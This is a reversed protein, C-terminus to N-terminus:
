IKGTLRECWGKSESHPWVVWYSPKSPADFEVFIKYYNDPDSGLNKIEEPTLDKRYVTEDKEDHVAVAWLTYDSEPVQFPFIDICHKFRSVLGNYYDVDDIKEYTPNLHDLTNQHVKRTRFELGAYKEYDHITRVNGFGYIGFDISCPCRGDMGFLTKNREHCKNNKEVWQKDDDWQKVRGRRTYEHWVVTKNPHFLDYGWTFARAALSIEEGHFYYEPDYPVEKAFQGLTFIFHASLFRAPIPEKLEEHNPIQEPLFFIAGEPIYRDFVMRWPALVRGEPDNSPDYSSVYATLLPKSHGKKKLLKVMKICEVDWNKVFRHHSDLQLYYKEGDYNQQVMHRAWCAGRSQEYPIDIIKFRVDDKYPNLDDFKDEMSHQWAISFVLNQPYKAKKICDEITPILEPDRYSAISIFIKNM